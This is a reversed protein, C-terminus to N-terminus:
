FATVAWPYKGTKMRIVIDNPNVVPGPEAEQYKKTRKAVFFRRRGNVKWVTWRRIPKNVTGFFECGRFYLAGLDGLTISKASGVRRWLKMKLGWNIVVHAHFEVEDLVIDPLSPKFTNSLNEQVSQSCRQEADV